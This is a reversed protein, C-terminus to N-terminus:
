STGAATAFATAPLARVARGVYERVSAEDVLEFDAHEDHDEYFEEIVQNVILDGLTSNGSINQEM